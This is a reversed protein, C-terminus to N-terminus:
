ASKANNGVAKVQKMFDDLAVSLKDQAEKRRSSEHAARATKDDICSQMETLEPDYGDLKVLEEAPRSDTGVKATRRKLVTTNGECTLVQDGTVGLNDKSLQSSSKSLRFLALFKRLPGM